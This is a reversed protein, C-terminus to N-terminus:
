NSATKSTTLGSTSTETFLNGVPFFSFPKKKTKPKQTKKDQKTKNKQSSVPWGLSMIYAFDNISGELSM